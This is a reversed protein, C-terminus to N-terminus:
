FNYSPFLNMYCPHHTIQYITLSPQEKHLHCKRQNRFSLFSCTHPTHPNWAMSTGPLSLSGLPSFNLKNSFCSSILPHSYSLDPSSDWYYPHLSAPVLVSPARQVMSTRQFKMRLVVSIQLMPQTTHLRIRLVQSSHSVSAQSSIPM